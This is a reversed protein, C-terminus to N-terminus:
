GRALSLVDDIERVDERDAGQEIAERRYKNVLEVLPAYANVARVIVAANEKDYTVAINDGTKEDIILGQHNGTKAEYWTIEQEM